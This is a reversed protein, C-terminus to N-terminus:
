GQPHIWCFCPVIPFPCHATLPPLPLFIPLAGFPKDTNIKFRKKSSPVEEVSLINVLPCVALLKGGNDEFYALKKSTLVFWRKKVSM